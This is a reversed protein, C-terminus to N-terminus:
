KGLYINLQMALLDTNIIYNAVTGPSYWPLFIFSYINVNPMKCKLHKKLCTFAFQIVQLWHCWVRTAAETFLFSRGSSSSTGRNSTDPLAYLVSLCAHIVFTFPFDYCQHQIQADKWRSGGRAAKQAATRAFVSFVILGRGKWGSRVSIRQKPRSLKSNSNSKAMSWRRRKRWESRRGGCWRSTLTRWNRAMKKAM